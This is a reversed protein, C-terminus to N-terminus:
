SRSFYINRSSFWINSTGEWKTMNQLTANWADDRAKELKAINAKLADTQQDAPLANYKKIADVYAKQAANYATRDAEKGTLFKGDENKIVFEAGQLRENKANTKVFKAGYTVVGPEQPNLSDPNNSIHNIVKITGDDQKIYEADSGTTSSIEIAKYQKNKDLYNWTHSAGDTANYGLEVTGKFAAKYEDFAAKDQETTGTYVLDNATVDKGTQADVLKFTAKEGEAWKGDDWTKTVKLNGNSDPKTPYPTNAQSPNNGFHFMVDNREQVKVVAKDNLTASYKVRLRTETAQGNVEKLGEDTLVLTFGNGDKTLTYANTSLPTEADKAGKYIKLSTENFTLGETM